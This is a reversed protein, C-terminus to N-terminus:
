FTLRITGSVGKTSPMNFYDAGQANIAGGLNTEPDVGTYDTKLWLNRGTISVRAGKIGPVKSLLSSPLQYNLTLERLRVWGGDEIYPQSPGTFGSGPGSAYWDINKTIATSNADGAQVSKGDATEGSEAYVGQFVFDENRGDASEASMGFYNLAGRTGNWIDGGQRIDILASLSLGKYTFTNRIGALWDPNPDGIIAEGAAVKPVGDLGILVNGNDDTDWVSGYLTGYAEGKVLRQNAGSFGYPLSIVDVGEALELVENVNKTFNVNMDWTFGTETKIPTVNLAVEVGRNEMIGANMYTSTYGSSTAVPVAIILDESRKVYGTVDFGVRNEFFNMELGLEQTFVKEPKLYANGLINSETLGLQGGFPFEFADIWGSVPFAQTQYTQTVYVPPQNGVQSWNARIKGYSIADVDLLESFVFSGSVSPYIFSNDTASGFTSAVDRRLTAGLFLTNNYDFSADIFSGVTRITYEDETTTITGANSMNYFDPMVLGEGQIYNSTNNRHNLSHGLLINMGLKEGFTKSYNVLIDSTIETNFLNYNILRGAPVTRSGIAFQQKRKDSYTDIGFRYTVTLGELPTVDVKSYGMFRNVDDIMPNQNITWYPNDYGGGGRYNRQTGDPNLYASPDSPDDSGNSNDFTPSTRLLGLMLGSTNSGQQIRRGGSNTYNASSTLKVLDNFKATATVRASTREFTNMPVIGEQELRSVSAYITAVENGGSINFSHEQKLGTQFFSGVNDYAKLDPDESIKPGFSFPNGTEPALYEGYWGQGYENQIEPLKNVTSGEVSYSYNATLKSGLKGKKTTIMVVGNAARSGYLAAASGGKLVTMDQIDDPNLDILRNSEAAGSRPDETFSMSNNVPVGDIVFLPQNNGTLSANGRIKIYSGGGAAGSSQTVQVGSVKGSLASVVNTEQSSVLNAADVSQVAYTLARKSKQVGFATVVVEDLQEVDEALTVNITSQNGLAVEQEVFGILRFVLTTADEPLSLTYSGELNTASGVTTGKVLVAVGPLPEGNSDNVVGTVTREQAFSWFTSVLMVTLLLLKRM